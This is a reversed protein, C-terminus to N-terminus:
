YSIESLERDLLTHRVQTVVLQRDMPCGLKVGFKKIPNSNYCTHFCANRFVIHTINM